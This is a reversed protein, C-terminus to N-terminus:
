AVEVLFYKSINRLTTIGGEELELLGPDVLCLVIQRTTGSSSSM